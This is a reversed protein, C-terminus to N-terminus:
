CTELWSDFDDVNKIRPAKSKKSAVAIRMEKLSFNFDSKTSIAKYSKTRVLVKEM